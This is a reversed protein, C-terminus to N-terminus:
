EIKLDGIKKPEDYRIVQTRVKTTPHIWVDNGQHTFGKPGNTGQTGPLHIISIIPTTQNESDPELVLALDGIYVEYNKTSTNDAIKITLKKQLNQLNLYM